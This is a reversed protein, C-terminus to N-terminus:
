PRLLDYHQAAAAFAATWQPTGPQGGTWFLDAELTTDWAEPLRASLLPRCARVATITLECPRAAHSALSQAWPAVDGGLEWIDRLLRAPRYLPDDVTFTECAGVTVDIDTATAFRDLETLMARACDASVRREAAAAGVARRLANLEWDCFVTV